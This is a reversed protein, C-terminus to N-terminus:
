PSTSGNNSNYLLIKRKITKRKRKYWEVSPVNYCKCFNKLYILYMITSNVRETM